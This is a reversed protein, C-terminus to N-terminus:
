RHLNPDTVTARLRVTHVSDGSLVGGRGFL